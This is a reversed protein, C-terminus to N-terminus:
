LGSLHLSLHVVGNRLSVLLSSFLLLLVLAGDLVIVWSRLKLTQHVGLLRQVTQRGGEASLGLFFLNSLHCLLKTDRHRRLKHLQAGVLGDGIGQDLNGDAHALRLILDSRSEASCHATVDSYFVFQGRDHSLWPDIIRFIYVFLPLVGQQPPRRGTSEQKM